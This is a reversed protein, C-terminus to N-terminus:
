CALGPRLTSMWLGSSRAYFSPEVALDDFSGLVDVDVAWKLPCLVTPASSILELTQPDFDVKLIKTPDLDTPPTKTIDLESITALSM